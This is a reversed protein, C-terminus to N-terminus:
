VAVHRDLRLINTLLDPSDETYVLPYTTVTFMGSGFEYPNREQILTRSRDVRSLLHRYQDIACCYIVLMGGTTLYVQLEQNSHNFCLSSVEKVDFTTGSITIPDIM